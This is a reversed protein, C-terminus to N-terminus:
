QDAHNWEAYCSTSEWIRVKMVRATPNRAACEATIRAAIESALLESTPDGETTVVEQFNSLSVAMPDEKNLIVQHDFRQVAEKICNYDVLIGTEPDAEGEIWVEARWQHGHLRACKGEYHLLRHSAEFYAEKYIRAIM